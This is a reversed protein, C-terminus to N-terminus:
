GPTEAAVALVPDGPRQVIAGPMGERLNTEIFQKTIMDVNGPVPAYFSMRYKLLQGNLATLYTRSEIPRGARQKYQLSVTRFNQGSIVLDRTAGVKLDTYYGLRTAQEVETVTSRFQTDFQPDAVGAIWTRRLAYVYADIWGIASDYRYSVGLGPAKAEYSQMGSYKWTVPVTPATEAVPATGACASLLAALILPLVRKM